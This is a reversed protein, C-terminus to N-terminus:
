SGGEDQFPREDVENNRAFLSRYLEPNRNKMMPWKKARM